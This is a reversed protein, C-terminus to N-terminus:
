MFVRSTAAVGPWGVAHRLYWLELVVERVGITIARPADNRPVFVICDTSTKLLLHAVHSLVARCRGANKQRNRELVDAIRQISLNPVHEIIHACHKARERRGGPDNFDDPLKVIFVETLM